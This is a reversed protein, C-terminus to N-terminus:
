DTKAPGQLGPAPSRVRRRGLSSQRVVLEPEFIVSTHVHKSDNTEQLLLEAGRQGLQQRPQRISSLSVAAAETFTIDDYGIIALDEPVRIANRLMEHLLGLALLDNACFAATPRTRPAMALLQQAARAGASVTHPSAPVTTLAGQPLAAATMAQRAGAERDVVQQADHESGVFAIRRHGAALLHDVAIRGGAVDNVAVSCMSGSSDTSDLIVVPVHRHRLISASAQSRRVPVLLAGQVQQEALMTLYRREKDPDDDSNCIILLAGAAITTDEAGRAVDGFFPNTIDPVILGVTRSQGLRLQRAGENRVYRLAAVAEEVRQRTADAVIEPRNFVNSVTAVSVGARDAVERIGVRRATGDDSARISAEL